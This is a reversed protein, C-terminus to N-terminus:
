TSCASPGLCCGQQQYLVASVDRVETRVAMYIAFGHVADGRIRKRKLIIYEENSCGRLGLLVCPWEQLHAGVGGSM